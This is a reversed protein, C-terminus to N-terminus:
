YWEVREAVGAKFIVRVGNFPGPQPGVLRVHRTDFSMTGEFRPHDPNSEPPPKDGRFSKGETLGPKGLLKTVEVATKGVVAREFEERTYEKPRAPLGPATSPPRLGACALVLLVFMAVPVSLRRM